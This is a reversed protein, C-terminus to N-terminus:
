TSDDGDLFRQASQADIINRAPNAGQRTYTLRAEINILEVLSFYDYPWNFGYESLKDYTIRREPDDTPGHRLRVRGKEFFYDVKAKEKVKFVMWKLDAKFGGSWGNVRYNGTPTQIGTDPDVQSISQLTAQPNLLDNLGFLEHSVINSVIPGQFGNESYTDLGVDPTANQWIKSLDKRSFTHSFEFLYMAFPSVYKGNIDNYKLFNFQPPINYRIMSRVMNRVSPRVQVSERTINTIDQLIGFGRDVIEIDPRDLNFPGQNEVPGDDTIALEQSEEPTSARYNLFGSERVAQYVEERPLDFFKKLGNVVRFPIAVVAEFVTEGEKVQGIQAFQETSGVGAEKIKLGILNSLSEIVETDEGEVPLGKPNIRISPLIENKFDDVGQHWIGITEKLTQRSELTRPSTVLPNNKHVNSFDFTPCVFKPQLVWRKGKRLPGDIFADSSKPVMNFFSESLHMAFRRNYSADVDNYEELENSANEAEYSLSGTASVSRVFEAKTDLVISEVTDYVVNPDPRFVYNITAEGDYHPSLYPSFGYGTKELCKPLPRGDNAIPRKRGADIPPGFASPNSYMSNHKILPTGGRRLTISSKYVKDTEVRGPQEDSVIAFNSNELFFKECETFFNNAAYSYMSKKGSSARALNFEAKLRESDKVVGMAYNHDNAYNSQFLDSNVTVLDFQTNNPNDREDVIHKFNRVFAPHLSSSHHPEMDYFLAVNKTGSDKMKPTFVEPSIIAEFPIRFVKKIGTSEQNENVWGQSYLADDKILGRGVFHSTGYSASGIRPVSADDTFNFKSGVIYSPIKTSGTIITVSGSFQEAGPGQFITTNNSIQEFTSLSNPGFNQYWTKFSPNNADKHGRPTHYVLSYQSPNSLDAIGNWRQRYSPSYKLDAAVSGSWTNFGYFTGSLFNVTKPLKPGFIPSFRDSSEITGSTHDFIEGSRFNQAHNWVVQLNTNHATKSTYGVDNGPKYWAVVNDHKSKSISHYPNSPGAAKGLKYNQTRILGRLPPTEVDEFGSLKKVEADTLSTNVVVMESMMIELPKLLDQPANTASAGTTGAIYSGFSTPLPTLTKSNDNIDTNIRKVGGLHSGIFSNRTGDLKITDKNYSSVNTNNTDTGKRFTSTTEFGNFFFKTNTLTPENADTEVYIHNWGATMSAPVGVSGSHVFYDTGNGGMLYVTYTPSGLVDGNTSGYMVQLAGASLGVHLGTKWANVTEDEGSGISLLTGLNPTPGFELRPNPEANFASALIQNSYPLYVWCSLGFKNGGSSLSGSITKAWDSGGGVEIRNKSILGDVNPLSHLSKSADM